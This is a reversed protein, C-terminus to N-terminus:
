GQTSQLARRHRHLNSFALLYLYHLGLRLSLGLLSLASSPLGHLDHLLDDGICSFDLLYRYSKVRLFTHCDQSCVTRQHEPMLSYMYAKEVALPLKSQTTHKRCKPLFVFWTHGSPPFLDSGDLTPENSVGLTKGQTFYNHNPLLLYFIEQISWLEKSGHPKLLADNVERAKVQNQRQWRFDHGPLRLPFPAM